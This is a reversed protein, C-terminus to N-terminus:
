EEALLLQEYMEKELVANKDLLRLASGPRKPDETLIFEGPEHHQGYNSQERVNNQVFCSVTLFAVQGGMAFSKQMIHRKGNTEDFWEQVEAGFLEAATEHLRGTMYEIRARIGACNICLEDGWPEGAGDHVHWSLTREVIGFPYECHDCNVCAFHYVGPYIILEFRNLSDAAIIRGDVLGFRTLQYEEMLEASRENLKANFKESVRQLRQGQMAFKLKVSRNMKDVIGAARDIMAWYSHLREGQFPIVELSWPDALAHVGSEMEVSLFSQILMVIETPFYELADREFLEEVLAIETM